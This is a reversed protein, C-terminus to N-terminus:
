VGLKVLNFSWTLEGEAAPAPRLGEDGDSVDDLDPECTTRVQKSEGDLVMGDDRSPLRKAGSLTYTLRDDVVGGPRGLPRSWRSDPRM